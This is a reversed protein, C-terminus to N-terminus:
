SFIWCFLIVRRYIAHRRISRIRQLLTFNMKQVSRCGFHLGSIERHCLVCSSPPICYRNNNHHTDLHYHYHSFYADPYRHSLMETIASSLFINDEWVYGSIILYLLHVWAERRLRSGASPPIWQTNLTYATCGHSM